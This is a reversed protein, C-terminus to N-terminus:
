AEEEEAELFYITDLSVARAVRVVDDKTVQKAMEICEEPTSRIGAMARGTYWGELSSPADDLARYGNIVGNKAIQLEEDTIQGEQIAKLQALIETQAKEKNAASLGSYVLMVGKHPEAMSACTYCLSLKERVNVFLKSTPFAGFLGSFVSFVHWEGDSLVCGTRFGLALVSQEAPATERIERVEGAARIVECAFPAPAAVGLPAFLTRLRAALATPDAEGIFFLECRAQQLVTRYFDYLQAPTVAEVDEPYGYTPIGYAEGECMLEECRKVAYRRKNNKQAAIYGLIQKKESEVYEGRFAGRELCPVFLLEAAMELVSDTIRTGDPAFRDRLMGASIGFFQTEGRGYVRGYIDSAYLDDLRRNIATLTPYKESGRMLVKPLLASLPANQRTIPLSFQVSFYNTKFKDTEIYHLTLGEKIVIDQMM